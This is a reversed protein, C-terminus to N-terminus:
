LMVGVDYLAHTWVATAFGRLRYVATLVLGCTLRFVFSKVSFDDSLSGVYHVASFAAAALLAWGIELGMARAGKQTRRILWVVGGFLVVRFALEEYFGAGFSLVVAALPGPSVRPGLTFSAVNRAVLAMVVAYVMAEGLRLALRGPNWARTLGLLRVGLAMLAALGFTLGLYLGLSRNLASLLLDTIPDFGNRVSLFVVGLHYVLFVPATLVVDGFRQESAHAEARSPRRPERAESVKSAAM